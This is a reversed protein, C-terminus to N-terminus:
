VVSKRDTILLDSDGPSKAPVARAQVNLGPLDDLALVPPEVESAALAKGQPVSKLSYLLAETAYRDNGEIRVAGLRGEYIQLKAVGNAVPAALTTAALPYGRSRYLRAIEEAAADIDTSTLARKTFSAVRETLDAVPVVTAGIFEFSDVQVAPAAPLVLRTGAVLDSRPPESFRTKPKPLSDYVSPVSPVAETASAVLAGGVAVLLSISLCDRFLRM